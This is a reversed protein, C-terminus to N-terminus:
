KSAKGYIKGYLLSEVDDLFEISINHNSRLKIGKQFLNLSNSTLSDIEIIPSEYFDKKFFVAFDIRNNKLKNKSSKLLSGDKVVIALESNSILCNELTIKSGEGASIAKDSVFNFTSNQIHIDSGSFDLGDNGIYKMNVNNIYGTSFDSDIADSFSNNLNVNEIEFYSNYFNILDDGVLNNEFTSNSIKVESNYFTIASPLSLEENKFNSFDSFHTNQILVKSNKFYISNEGLGKLITQNESDAGIEVTCNQFILKSSKIFEINTNDSIKIHKNNYTYSADFTVIGSISITDKAFSERIKKSYNLKGELQSLINNKVPSFRELEPLITYLNTLPNHVILLANHDRPFLDVSQLIKINEQTSADFVLDELHNQFNTKYEDSLYYPSLSLNKELRYIKTSRNKLIELNEKNITPFFFGEKKKYSNFQIEIPISSITNLDHLQLELFNELIVGEQFGSIFKGKASIRLISDIFELKYHNKKTGSQLGKIGYYKNGLFFSHLQKDKLNM